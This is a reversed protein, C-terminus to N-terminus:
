YCGQIEITNPLQKAFTTHIAKLEALEFDSVISQVSDFQMIDLIIKFVIVYDKYTRKPMLVHMLPFYKSSISDYGMINLVQAWKSPCCKFTGDICLVGVGNCEREQRYKSFFVYDKDNRHFSWGWSDGGIAAIEKDLSSRGPQVERRSVAEIWSLIRRENIYPIIRTRNKENWERYKKFVENVIDSRTNKPNGNLYENQAFEKLRTVLLTIDEHNEDIMQCSTSHQSVKKGPIVEYSRYIKNYKIIIRFGCTPCKFYHSVIKGEKTNYRDSPANTFIFNEFEIRNVDYFPDYSSPDPIPIIISKHKLLEILQNISLSEGIMKAM